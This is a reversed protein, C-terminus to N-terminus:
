SKPSFPVWGHYERGEMGMARTEPKSESIVERSMLCVSSRAKSSRGCKAVKCWQCSSEIEKVREVEPHRATEGIRM